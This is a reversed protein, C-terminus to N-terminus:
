AAGREADSLLRKALDDRQLGDEVTRVLDASLEDREVKLVKDGDENQGVHFADWKNELSNWADKVTQHYLVTDPKAMEQVKGARVSSGSRNALRRILENRSILEATRKKTTADGQKAGTEAMTKATAADREIKDLKNEVRAVRQELQDIYNITRFTAEMPGVEEEVDTGVRFVLKSFAVRMADEKDMVDDLERAKDFDLPPYSEQLGSVAQESDSM